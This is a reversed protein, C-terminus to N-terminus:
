PRLRGSRARRVARTQEFVEAVGRDDLDLREILESVESLELCGSDRGHELLVKFREETALQKASM